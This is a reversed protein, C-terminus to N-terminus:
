LESLDNVVSSISRSIMDIDLKPSRKKAKKDLERLLREGPKFKKKKPTKGQPQNFIQQILEDDNDNDDNLLEKHIKGMGPLVYNNFM